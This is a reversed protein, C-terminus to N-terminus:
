SGGGGGGANHGGGGGGSYGGGAGASTLCLNNGGSGGGFGGDGADNTSKPTGAGGNVYAKGGQSGQGTVGDSLLGGGGGTGCNISNISGGNGNSGGQGPPYNSEEYPAAQGTESLSADTGGGGLPGGSRHNYDECAGGGGGAVVLATSTQDYVVFSGGGGGGINEGDEGEQGVLVSLLQGENLLFDGEMTVGRGRFSTGYNTAGGGSAGVARIRYTATQPVTWRQIGAVVTVDGELSTEAYHQNCASQTPGSSGSQGCTSFTATEFPEICPVVQGPCTNGCPDLPATDCPVDGPAPCQGVDLATGSSGCPHGCDDLVPQGCAVDSELPCGSPEPGTGASGCPNGCTDLVPAGCPTAAQESICLATSLGTGTGACAGGCGDILGEGCPASAPDPCLAECTRLQLLKQGDCFVLRQVQPDYHMAGAHEADCPPPNASGIRVGGGADVAGDAVVDGTSLIPGAVDLGTSTNLVGDIVSLHAGIPALTE